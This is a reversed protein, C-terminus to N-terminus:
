KIMPNNTSENQPLQYTLRPDDWKITENTHYVNRGSRQIDIKFRKMVTLSFGEGWMEVRWNYLIEKLLEEGSLGNIKAQVAAYQDEATREKLLALLHTRASADDGKRAAAESAILYMEAMRMFVIDSTWTRDGQVQRAPHFFKNIPLGRSANFWSKRLDTDPIEAQLNANIGKFAGVSAYSYTFVDMHGWFSALKGTNDENIDIAWIFEPTKYDNFGNTLLDKAAILPYNKAQKTVVTNAVEYAKEWEGLDMYARALAGRAVTADLYQKNVRKVGSKDISDVAQTLDKVILQYLEDLTGLKNPKSGDDSARYIPVVLSSKTADSYPKGYFHALNLYALARLTKVQGWNYLTEPRNQEPSISEDGGVSRFFGNALSITRYSIRWVSYNPIEFKQYGLLNAVSSFWGYSQGGQLEMDGSMLDSTIDFAKQAFDDHSNPTSQMSKFFTQLTGNVFGLAIDDNWKGAEAIQGATHLESPEQNLFDKKCASLALLGCALCISNRISTRMIHYFTYSHSM